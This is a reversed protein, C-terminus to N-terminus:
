AATLASTRVLGFIVQGNMESHYDGDYKKTEFVLDCVEILGKSRTSARLIVLRRGKGSPLM